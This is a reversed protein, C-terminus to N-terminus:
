RLGAEPTQCIFQLILRARAQGHTPAQALLEMAARNSQVSLCQGLLQTAAWDLMRQTQETTLEKADRWSRPILNVLRNDVRQAFRWRQMLANSSTYSADDTPYGDPTSRDFLRMGSRRTFDDLINADSVQAARSIRLAFDLPTAVRRPAAALEKSSALATLLARMDGGTKKYVLALRSVLSVPAPNAVYSEVLKRSIYDATNPHSALTEFFTQVREFRKVPEAPPFNVGFVELAEGANLLPDYRFEGVLDGGTGDLDGQEAMSWGTLLNALATVDTQSYGGKVGVTHLEFLERAYNENLRGTFSRQQDLYTLMAPSTASTLLLDSFRGVGLRSFADHERRKKERGAKEIWTSFHNQTWLVFRQRVPNPEITSEYFVKRVLADNPNDGHFHTEVSDRVAQRQGPHDPKLSELLWKEPGMTLVAALDNQSAGLGLRDLLKVAHAYTGRAPDRDSSVRIERAPSETRSGDHHTVVVKVRHSGSPLSRTLLPLIVPNLGSSFDSDLNQLNDNISLDVSKVPRPSALDVVIADTLGVPQTGPWYRITISTKEPVIEHSKEQLRIWRLWINRDGKDGDYEDNIFRFVLEKAGNALEVTGLTKESWEGVINSTAVITERGDVRLAVEAQPHGKFYQGRAFVGLEFTGALSEPLRLISEGNSLWAAADSTRKGEATEYRAAMSQDWGPDFVTYYHTQPFQTQATKTLHLTQTASEVWGGAKTKARLQLTNAGVRFQGPALAYILRPGASKAVSTGNLWLHVEPFDVSTKEALRCQATLTVPAGITKGDFFRDFHLKFGGSKVKASQSPAMTMMMGGGNEPASVEAAANVKVLEYRDLYVNRDVKGESFDNEFRVGLLRKGANLRVPIGLPTRRWQRDTVRGNTVPKERDDVRLGLTPFTGVADDGRSVIMMQYDGPQVITVETLWVPDSGYNIVMVEGSANKDTGIKPFQEGYREPRPTNVTNECEEAMIEDPAPHLVQLTLPASKAVTEHDLQVELTLANEGAALRSTELLFLFHYGPGSLASPSPQPAIKEGNPLRLLASPAVNGPIFCEASVAIEGWVAARQLPSTIRPEVVMRPKSRPAIELALSQGAMVLTARGPRLPRVRLYGIPQNELIRGTQIIELAQSPHVRTAYEASALNSGSRRFPIVQTQGEELQLTPAVFRIAPIPKAQLTAAVVPLLSTLLLTRLWKEFLPIASIKPM